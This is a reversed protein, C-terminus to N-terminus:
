KLKFISWLKRLWKFSLSRFIYRIPQTFLKIWRNIKFLGSILKGIIKL